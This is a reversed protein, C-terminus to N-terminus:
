SGAGEHLSPATAPVLKLHDYWIELDLRQEGPNPTLELWQAPCDAPITVAQHFSKWVGGTDISPIKAVVQDNNACRITWILRGNSGTAFSLTEGGFVYEGARVLMLQRALEPKSYADYTTKLGQGGRFPAETVESGGGLGGALVWNFPPAGPADRFDGDYVGYFEPREKPLLGTWLTYAADYDRDAIMRRLVMTTEGATPAGGSKKLELLITSLIGTDPLVEAAYTLFPERWVSPTVMQRALATTAAPSSQLAYLMPSAVVRMSEPRRRLLADAHAFACAYDGNALCRNYLWLNATLDRHDLKAASDMLGQTRALDGQADAVRALVVLAPANQARKRLSAEGLAQAKLLAEPTQEGELLDAAERVLSDPTRFWYDQGLSVGGSAHLLVAGACVVAVLSTVVVAGSLGRRVGM